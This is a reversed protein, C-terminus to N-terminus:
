LSGYRIFRHCRTFSRGSSIGKVALRRLLLSLSSMKRLTSEQPQPLNLLGQTVDLGLHTKQSGYGVGAGEEQETTWKGQSEDSTSFSGSFITLSHHSVGSQPMLLM